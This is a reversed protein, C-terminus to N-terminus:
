MRSAISAAIKGPNGAATAATSAIEIEKGRERRKAERPNFGGRRRRRRRRRVQRSTVWEGSSEPPHDGRRLETQNFSMSGLFEFGGLNKLSGISHLFAWSNSDDLAGGRGQARARGSGDYFQTFAADYMGNRLEPSPLLSRAIKVYQTPSLEPAPAPSRVLRRDSRAGDGSSVSDM